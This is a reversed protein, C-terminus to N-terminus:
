RFNGNLRRICFERWWYELACKKSCLPAGAMKKTECVLYIYTDDIRVRWAKPFEIGTQCHLCVKRWGLAHGTKSITYPFKEPYCQSM